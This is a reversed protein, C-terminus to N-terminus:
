AFPYICHLPVATRREMIASKGARRLRVCSLTLFLYQAKPQGGTDSFIRSSHMEMACISNRDM